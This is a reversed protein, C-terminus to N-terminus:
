VGRKYAVYHFKGPPIRQNGAALRRLYFKGDQIEWGPYSSANIYGPVGSLAYGTAPSSMALVNTAALFYYGNPSVEDEVFISAARRQPILNADYKMGVILYMRGNPPSAIANFSDKDMWVQIYDPDFGLAIGPFPEPTATVLVESAMTIEGAAYMGNGGGGSIAQVASVFGAPFALQASTGGKARIADAISTLDTNLQSSDVAKDIAM